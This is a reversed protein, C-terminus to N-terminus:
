ISNWQCISPYTWLHSVYTLLPLLLAVCKAARTSDPAPWSEDVWQQKKIVMGVSKSTSGFPPPKTATAETVNLKGKMDAERQAKSTSLPPSAPSRWPNSGMQVKDQLRPPLQCNASSAATCPQHIKCCQRFWQAWCLCHFASSQDDKYCCTLIM